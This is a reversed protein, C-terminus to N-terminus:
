DPPRCPLVVTFIAGGESHNDATIRGHYQQVIENSISLGLGTGEGVMKTTFFPEFVRDLDDPAIGPGTDRISFAVANEVPVPWSSVTITGDIAGMADSANILLNVLVQTIQNPDCLLPPLGKALDTKIKVTEHQHIEYAALNLSDEIIHNLDCPVFEGGEVHSYSRLTQLLRACRWASYDITQVYSLLEDTSLNDDAVQSLLTNCTATIVSIPNALEHAVGATLTGLGALRQIRTLAMSLSELDVQPRNLTIAEM